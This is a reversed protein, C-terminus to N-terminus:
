PAQMEAKNEVRAGPRALTEFFDPFSIASWEAGNITTTGKAGLAAVATAMVICHDNHDVMECGKLDSKYITMSHDDTIPDIRAGMKLLEELVMAPTDTEKLRSSALNYLKMKGEAFCGLTTLIPPSDPINTCDIEIGKLTKGGRVRIGDLGFNRVEIDAGMEKLIDVIVKDGHVDRYDLGHLTIDSDTIAAAVM